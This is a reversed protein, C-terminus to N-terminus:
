VRLIPTSVVPNGDPTITYTILADSDNFNYKADVILADISNDVETQPENPLLQLRNFVDSVVRVWETPRFVRPLGFFTKVSYHVWNIGVPHEVMGTSVSIENNVTNERNSQVNAPVFIYQGSGDIFFRFKYDRALETLVDTVAQRQNYFLPTNIVTAALEVNQQLLRLDVPIGVASAIQEIISILPTNSPFSLNIKTTRSSLSINTLEITLIRGGVIKDQSYYVPFGSYVLPLSTILRQAEAENDEFIRVDSYGAHIDVRPRLKYTKVDFSFADTIDNNSNDITLQCDAFPSFYSLTFNFNIGLGLNNYPQRFYIRRIPLPSFTNESIAKFISIVCQRLM